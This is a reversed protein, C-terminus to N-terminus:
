DGHHSMNARKSMLNIIEDAHWPKMLRDSRNDIGVDFVRFESQYNGHTHGHLQISGRACQNWEAIPYHFLCLKIKSYTLEKYHQISDFMRQISMDSQIVKDHNGYILHKKGNLRAVISKTEQATGFSFDGLFFVEDGYDVCSNHAAILLENMEETSTGVRTNPCFKMINKHFFHHDSSFWM